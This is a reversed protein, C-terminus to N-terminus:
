KIKCGLNKAVINRNFFHKMRSLFLMVQNRRKMNTAKNTKNKGKKIISVMTPIESIKPHVIESPPPVHKMRPASKPGDSEARETEPHNISIM